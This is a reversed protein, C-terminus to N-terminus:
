KRKPYSPYYTLCDNSPDTRTETEVVRWGPYLTSAIKKAEEMTSASILRGNANNCSFPSLAMFMM